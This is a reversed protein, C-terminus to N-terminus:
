EEFRFLSAKKDYRWGRGFKRRPIAVQPQDEELIRECEALAPIAATSDVSHLNLWGALAALRLSRELPLDNLMGALFASISVDGAGTASAIETVEFPPCWLERGAWGGVEGRFGRGFRAIRMENGTRLYIGHPGAKLMCLGCGLRLFEAGLERVKETGVLDIIEGGRSALERYTDPEMCQLSEELSPLLLDVHPLLRSFIAPWDAEQATSSDQLSLDLSTSLGLAKVRTFIEVLEKGAGSYLSRMVTPYGLHFHCARRVISFDIHSSDFRDNAGPYHLFMRDAGPPSIVVSYSTGAESTQSIGATSGHRGLREVLIRGFDDSGVLGMFATEVGLRVLGVGTNSVSGGCSLDAQGVRVLSGPRLLGGSDLRISAPFTPTLDLCLHGACVVDLDYLTETEPLM